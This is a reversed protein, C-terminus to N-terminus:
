ELNPPRTLTNFGPPHAQRGKRLRGTKRGEEKREHIGEPAGCERRRLLPEGKKAAKIGASKQASSDQSGCVNLLCGKFVTPLMASQPARDSQLPPVCPWVTHLPRDSAEALLCREFAATALLPLQRLACSPAETAGHESMGLALPRSGVSAAPRPFEPSCHGQIGLSRLDWPIFILFLWLSM